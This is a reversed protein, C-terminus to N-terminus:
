KIGTKNSLVKGRFRNFAYRDIYDMNSPLNVCELSECDFFVDFGIEKLTNPINIDSLNYCGYFCANRLRLLNNPLEISKIDYRNKFLETGIETVYSPIKIQLEDSVNGWEILAIDKYGLIVVKFDNLGQLRRFVRDRAIKKSTNYVWEIQIDSTFESVFINDNEDVYYGAIDTRSVTKCVNYSLLRLTKNDCDDYLSYTVKTDYETVYIEDDSVYRSVYYM